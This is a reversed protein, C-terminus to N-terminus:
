IHILSLALAADVEVATHSGGWRQQFHSALVCAAGGLHTSTFPADYRMLGAIWEMYDYELVEAAGLVVYSSPVDNVELTYGGDRLPDESIRATGTDIRYTGAIRKKPARPKRAVARYACTGRLQRPM